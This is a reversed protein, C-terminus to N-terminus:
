PKLKVDTYAAVEVVEGNVKMEGIVYVRLNHKLDPRQLNPYVGVIHVAPMFRETPKEQVEIWGDETEEFIRIGYNNPFVIENISNYKLELILAENTGFENAYAPARLNIQQNVNTGDMQIPDNKDSTCASILGSFAVFFFAFLLVRKM